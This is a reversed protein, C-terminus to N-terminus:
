VHGKLVFNPTLWILSSRAGLIGLFLSILFLAKWVVLQHKDIVYM